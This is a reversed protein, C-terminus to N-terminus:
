DYWFYRRARRATNVEITGQPNITFRIGGQEGTVFVEDVISKYRAMVDAAPHGYRNMYGAEFVVVKPSINNLFAMSSSTKSGHHPASLIDVSPLVASALLQAEIEREIDGPLLIRRGAFSILLVCSTNNTKKSIYGAPPWLVEILLDDRQFSDGAQCPIPNGELEAPAHLTAIDLSEIVDQLGGAHDTDRHSIWVNDLRNVGQKTLAPLVHGKFATYEGYRPGTDYLGRWSPTQLLVASGQGIDFFDIQLCNEQRDAPTALVCVLPLLALYRWLWVRPLILVVCSLLLVIWSSMPFSPAQWLSWPVDALWALGVDLYILLQDLWWWAQQWAFSGMFLLLVLPLLIALCPVFVINIFPAILSISGINSVLLPMSVVMCRWQAALLLQWPTTQASVGALLAAVLAFSLLFGLSLSGFPQLSVVVCLAVAWGLWPESQMKFWLMLVAVLLMLTARQVPMGMGCLVAFLCGALLAGCAAWCGRSLVSYTAPWCWSFMYFLAGGVAGMLGVHLGSVVVVHVTGTNKLVEWQTALLQSKDGLVLAALWGKSTASLPADLIETQLSHRWRLVMGSVGSEEGLYQDISRVYGKALLRKSIDSRERNTTDFNINRHVRKLRATFVYCYGPQIDVFQYDSLKILGQMEIVKLGVNAERVEVDFQQYDLSKSVLSKVCGNITIDKAQHEKPLRKNLYSHGDLTAIALAIFAISIVNNFRWYIIGFLLVLGAQLPSLLQSFWPVCAAVVGYTLFLLWM